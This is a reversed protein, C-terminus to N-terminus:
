GPINWIGSDTIIPLVKMEVGNQM